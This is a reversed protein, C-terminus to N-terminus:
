TLRRGIVFIVAKSKGSGGTIPLIKATISDFDASPFLPTVIGVQAVTDAPADLDLTIPFRAFDLDGVTM